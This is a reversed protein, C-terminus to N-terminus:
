APPRQEHHLHRLAWSMSERLKAKATNIEDTVGFPVRSLKDHLQMALLRVEAVARRDEDALKRLVQDAHPAPTPFLSNATALRDAVTNAIHPTPVEVMTTSGGNTTNGNIIPITQVVATDGRRLAELVDNGVLARFAREDELLSATVYIANIM